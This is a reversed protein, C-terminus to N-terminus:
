NLFEHHLSALCNLAGVRKPVLALRNSCDFTPRHFDPSPALCAPRPVLSLSPLLCCTVQVSCHAILLSRRGVVEVKESSLAIIISQMDLAEPSQKNGEASEHVRPGAFRNPCGRGWVALWLPASMMCIRDSPAAAFVEAKRLRHPRIPHHASASIQQLHSLFAPSALASPCRV